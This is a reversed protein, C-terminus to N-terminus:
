PFRSALFKALFRRLDPTVVLPIEKGAAQSALVQTLHGHVQSATEPPLVLAPGRAGVIEVAAVLVQRTNAIVFARAAPVGGTPHPRKFSHCSCLTAVFAAPSHVVQAHVFAGALVGLWAGAREGLPGLFDAAACRTEARQHRPVGGVNM